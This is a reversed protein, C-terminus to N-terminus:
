DICEFSDEDENKPKRKLIKHKIEGGLCLITEAGGNHKIHEGIRSQVTDYNEDDDVDMIAYTKYTQTIEVFRKAM